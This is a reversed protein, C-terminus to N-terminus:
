GTKSTVLLKKPPIQPIVLGPWRQLLVEHLAYFDSYRRITEFSGKSDTGQTSHVSVPYTVHAGPLPPGITVLYAEKQGKEPVPVIPIAKFESPIEPYAFEDTKSKDQSFVDEYSSSSEM